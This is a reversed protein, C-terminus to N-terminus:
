SLGNQGSPKKAAQVSSYWSVCFPTLYTLTMKLIRVLTLDGGFLVDYSNILNLITGVILSMFFARKLHSRNM